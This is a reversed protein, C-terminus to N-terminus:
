CKEIFNKILQMGFKHSKEPHFQVGIINDKVIGSTFERGFKTTSLINEDKECVVHYSHVFYFRPDEHYGESLFHATTFQTDNWGMHPIKLEPYNSLEFKITNAAIWGLGNVNGEESSKTLLQMGLCIGLFPVKEVLAREKLIPILNMEQLNNMAKEFSGVGPLIIKTAKSIIEIDSTIVSTHGIKKIINSVSGLNGMKYDVIVIM